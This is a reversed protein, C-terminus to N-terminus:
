IELPQLITRGRPSAVGSRRDFVPQGRLWVKEVRGNLTRGDYPTIPHRHYLERAEVTFSTEPDVVVLDADAGPVIGGKRGGLGVVRAPAAALWRAVDDLGFGRARAETWVAPFLLQLSAIGGWAARLDGDGLHKLTPPAPSHDSGLTTLTGDALAAWLAERHRRKRIPPACKFRPDGDPVDEAAFTLYHPCTEASIALGETQAARLRELSAASAVHVVHVRGGLERVLRILLEIAAVEFREPRSALWERYSRPDRMAPAESVLEAHVLLPRDLQALKPLAARLDDEGVHGFDDIGSPALFAKFGLVGAAALPRLQDLNGPVVGGHFGVDVALKGETAALKAHLAELTTTTPHSNLPMDVLTTVGGAAAARTATAFGEWETRGPENVHVHLDVLGPLVALNGVDVVEISAPAAAPDLVAVIRGGDVHVAAPRTGEPTVVRRSLLVFSSPM